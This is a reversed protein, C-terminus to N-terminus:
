GAVILALQRPGHVGEVRKLEIDSTASPGSILTIARKDAIPGALREIAEPVTEVIQDARVVCVHLDPLLSLVRRGGVPGAALVVTGTLAIAVECGTLVGDCSEIQERSLPPADTLHRIANVRWEAQLGPPVAVTTADHRAFADTIAAVIAGVDRGCRTVTARYDRSREVFLETLAKRELTGTRHYATAPDHDLEPSWTDPEGAPVEAVADRIRQLILERDTM